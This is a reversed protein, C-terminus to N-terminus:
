ERRTDRVPSNGEGSRVFPGCVKCQWKEERAPMMVYTEVLVLRPWPTGAEGTLWLKWSLYLTVTDWHVEKLALVSKIPGLYKKKKKILPACTIFFVAKVTWLCHLSSSETKWGVLHFFNSLICWSSFPSREFQQLKYMKNLSSSIEANRTLKRNLFTKHHSPPFLVKCLVM